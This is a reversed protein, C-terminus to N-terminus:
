GNVLYLTFKKASERFSILYAGEDGIYVSDFEERKMEIFSRYLDDDVPFSDRVGNAKNDKKWMCDGIGHIRL